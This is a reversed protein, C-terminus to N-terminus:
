RKARPRPPAPRKAAPRKPAPKQKAAPKKTPATKKPAAKAAKAPKAKAPPLVPAPPPLSVNPRKAPKSKKRKAQRTAAIGGAFSPESEVPAARKPKKPKAAPQTLNPLHRDVAFRVLFGISCEEREAVRKLAERTDAPLRVSIMEQVPKEVVVQDWEVHDLADRILSSVSRVLGDAVPQRIRELLEADLAMAFPRDDPVTEEM